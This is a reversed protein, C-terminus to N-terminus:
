KMRPDQDGDHSLNIGTLAQELPMEFSRMM